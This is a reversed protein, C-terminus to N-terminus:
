ENKQLYIQLINCVIKLDNEIFILRPAELKLKSVMKNLMLPLQYALSRKLELENSAFDNDLTLICSNNEMLVLRALIEACESFNHRESESPSINEKLARDFRLVLLSSRQQLALGISKLLAAPDNQPVPLNAQLVQCLNRLLELVSSNRSVDLCFIAEFSPSYEILYSTLDLEQNASYNILVLNARNQRIWLSAQLRDFLVEGSVNEIQSELWKEELFELFNRRNVQVGVVKSLVKFLGSAANQLSSETYQYKISAQRYTMNQSIIEIVLKEAETLGSKRPSSSQLFTKAFNVILTIDTSM